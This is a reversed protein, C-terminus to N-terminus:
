CRQYNPDLILTIVVMGFLLNSEKKLEKHSFVESLIKGMHTETTSNELNFLNLLQQRAVEVEPRTKWITCQEISFHESLHGDFLSFHKYLRDKIKRVYGERHNQFFEM